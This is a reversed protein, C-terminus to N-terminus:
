LKWGGMSWSGVRGSKLCPRTWVNSSGVLNQCTFFDSVPTEAMDGSLNTM